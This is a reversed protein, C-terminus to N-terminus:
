CPKHPRLRSRQLFGVATIGDVSLILSLLTDVVLPDGM